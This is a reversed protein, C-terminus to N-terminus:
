NRAVGRRGLSPAGVRASRSRLQLAKNPLGKALERLREILAAGRPALRANDVSDDWTANKITGWDEINDFQLFGYVIMWWYALDTISKGHRERIQEM